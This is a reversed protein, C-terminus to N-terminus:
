AAELLGTISYAAHPEGVGIFEASNQTSNPSMSNDDDTANVCEDSWDNVNYGCDPVAKGDPRKFYLNGAADNIISYGGEHV